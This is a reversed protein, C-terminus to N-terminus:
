EGKVLIGSNITIGNKDNQILYIYSGSNVFSLDIQTSASNIRENIIEQGTVSYLRFILADNYESEVTIMDDFLTPFVVVNQLDRPSNDGVSLILSLGCEEGDKIYYILEKKFVVGPAKPPVQHEKHYTLGLGIAWIKTVPNGVPPGTKAWAGISEVGCLDDDFFNYNQNLLIDISYLSSDLNTYTELVTDPGFSTSDGPLNYDYGDIVKTYTVSTSDLAYEVDIIIHRSKQSLGYWVENQYHYEDGINFDFVEGITPLEQGLVSLSTNLIILPIIILKKVIIIKFTSKSSISKM